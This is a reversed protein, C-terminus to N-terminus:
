LERRRFNRIQDESFPYGDPRRFGEAKLLQELRKDTLSPDNQKLERLRSLVAHYLPDPRIRGDEGKRYGRPPKTPHVANIADHVIERRIGHISVLEEEARMLGHKPDLEKLLLMMGVRVDNIRAADRLEDFSASALDAGRPEPLGDWLLAEALPVPETPLEGGEVKKAFDLAIRDFSKAMAEIANRAAILAIVQYRDEEFLARLREEETRSAPAKRV